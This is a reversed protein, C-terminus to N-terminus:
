RAKMGAIWIKLVQLTEWIKNQSKTQHKVCLNHQQAGSSKISLLNKQRVNKRFVSNNEMLAGSSRLGLHCLM